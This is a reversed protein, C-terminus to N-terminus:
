RLSGEEAGVAEVEVPPLGLGKRLETTSYDSYYLVNRGFGSSNSYKQHNFWTLEVITLGPPAVMHALVAFSSEGVLLVDCRSLEKIDGVWDRSDLLTYTYGDEKLPTLVTEDAERMAITLEVPGLDRQIDALIRRMNPMSMSFYFEGPPMKYATDSWRVHIGVRIPRTIPFTLAPLTLPTPALRERVWDMVCGNLDETVEGFRQEKHEYIDELDLISTCNEMLAAIRTMKEETERDGRCLGRVFDSREHPIIHDQIRCAKRVDVTYDEPNLQENFIESTSYDWNRSESLVLTSDLACALVISHKFHQLVSGLGERGISGARLYVRKKPPPPPPPPPPPSPEFILVSEDPQQVTLTLSTDLTLLLAYIARRPIRPLADHIFARM